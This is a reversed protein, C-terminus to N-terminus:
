TPLSPSPAGPAPEASLMQEAPYLTWRLSANLAAIRALAARSLSQNFAWPGSGCVYGIDFEKVACRSWVAKHEPMLLELADLMKTISAEPETFSEEAEFAASWTGYENQEIHLTFLGAANLAAALPLLNEASRLELDTNLYETKGPKLNNRM